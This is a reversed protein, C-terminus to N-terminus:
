DLKLEFLNTGNTKTARARLIYGRGKYMLHSETRSTGSTFKLRTCGRRRAEREMDDFLMTAYGKRRVKRAVILDNAYAERGRSPVLVETFCVTGVVETSSRDDSYEELLIFYHSTSEITKIIIDRSSSRRMNLEMYLRDIANVDQIAVPRVIARM